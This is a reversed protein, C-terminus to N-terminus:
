RNLVKASRLYNKIIKIVKKQKKKDLGVYIPISISNKFFKESGSFFKMKENYVSFKYIPIYHQQVIIGNKKLYNIFNGKKKKIKSFLINILFLHFSPKIIESYQPILLNTDFNKLESLYKEYIKKRSNLFYKIKKLQSLGLACNIDSLRYNFGNKKVDYLWHKKKDRLIGHSRFLEINRAINANRTTIVGGEGSTITKLPHLSFTSIDAHNCSGVKFMKKKYEYESGLAHCADEILYCKYKKKIEYFKKINEPFGGHYMVIIVDIKKLNNERICNFVKEPTIQGTNEDVDVLFVRLNMSKAMNYSAIFNVAPMLIVDNKKLNISLLALHIAATGSSCAYVHKCQLYFKLQSEFKGVYPGTTILDNSLADSVSEIDKKNIYQRGYPIFKM